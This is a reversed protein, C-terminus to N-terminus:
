LAPGKPCSRGAPRPIAEAAAEHLSRIGVPAAITIGARFPYKKYVGLSAGNVMVQYSAFFHTKNFNSFYSILKILTAKGFGQVLFDAM